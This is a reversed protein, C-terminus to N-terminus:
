ALSSPLMYTFRANTSFTGRKSRMIAALARLDDYKGESNDYKDKTLRKLEAHVFDRHKLIEKDMLLNYWKETLGQSKIIGQM